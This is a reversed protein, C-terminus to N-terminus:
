LYNIRERGENVNPASLKDNLECRRDIEDSPNGFKRRHQALHILFGVAGSVSPPPGFLEGSDGSAGTDPALEFWFGPSSAVTSAVTAVSVPRPLIKPKPTTQGRRSRFRGTEM